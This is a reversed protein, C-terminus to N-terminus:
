LILKNHNKCDIIGILHENSRFWELIITDGQGVNKFTIKMLNSKRTSFNWIIKRILTNGKEFKVSLQPDADRSLFKIEGSFTLIEIEIIINLDLTVSGEFLEINFKRTEFIRNNEDILCKVVVFDTDIHLIKGIIVDVSKATKQTIYDGVAPDSAINM